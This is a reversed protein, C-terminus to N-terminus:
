PITFRLKAWGLVGTAGAGGNDAPGTGGAGGGVGAGSNPAAGTGNGGPSGAPQAAGGNGAPALLGKGGGGGGGGEGVASTGGTGSAWFTAPPTVFLSTVGGQGDTGNAGQLGGEGGALMFGSGYPPGSADSIKPIFVGGPYCAGGRGPGPGGGQGGSSGGLSVLSVNTTGDVATTYGGDAGPAGNGAPALGATGAVGGSGILINLPDALNHSFLGRQLPVGGSGGGGVGPAAASGAQGGGGGGSGGFGELECLLTGQTPLGFLPRQLTGLVNGTTALFVMEVEHTDLQFLATSAASTAFVGGSLNITDSDYQIVVSGIGTVWSPGIPFTPIGFTGAELKAAYFFLQLLAGAGVTIVPVGAIAQIIGGQGSVVINLPNAGVVSIAPNTATPATGIYANDELYLVPWPVGVVTVSYDWSLAPTASMTNAEVFLTGSIKNLGKLTAGDEIVLTTYGHIDQRYPRLELRGLGDTVGTAGPVTAPTVLSTDIYVVCKGDAATIVTQVEPWTAVHDGASPTGPRYIVSAMGKPVTSASGWEPGVFVSVDGPNPM